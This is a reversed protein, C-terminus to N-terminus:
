ADNCLVPICAMRPPSYFLPPQQSSLSNPTGRFLTRENQEGLCMNHKMEALNRQINPHFSRFLIERFKCRPLFQCM